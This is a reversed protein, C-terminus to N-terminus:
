ENNTTIPRCQLLKVEDNIFGWEVDLNLGYIKECDVMLSYLKSLDNQKLSVQCIQDEPVSMESIGYNDNMCLFRDKIGSKIEIVEGSALNLKFYDPIVLGSVVAEGIGWSSEIIIERTGTIPNCSFMVGAKDVNVMEQIIIAIETEHKLYMKERYMQASKSMVSDAVIKIASILQEFTKINLISTHQGAFSANKSDESISSSRVAVSTCSDAFKNKLIYTALEDGNVVLNVFQRNIVFGKPIPLGFKLGKALNSAKGGFDAIEYADNLNVIKM